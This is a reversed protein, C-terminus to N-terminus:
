HRTLAAQWTHEQRSTDVILDESGAQGDLRVWAFGPGWTHRWSAARGARAADTIRRAAQALSLRPAPAADPTMATGYAALLQRMLTDGVLYPRVRAGIGSQLAAIATRPLRATVALQLTGDRESDLPVVGLAEIVTRSLGAVPTRVTDLDIQTLFGVGAQRALAHVVTTEDIAGSALLQAGLRLGTHAQLHLARQLVEPTIARSALLATGLRVPPMSAVPAIPPPQLADLQRATDTTLCDATCYWQGDFALGSRQLLSP